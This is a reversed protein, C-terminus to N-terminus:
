VKPVTGNGTRGVCTYYRRKGELRKGTTSVLVIKVYFRGKPLGRLNVTSRFRKGRLVKTRHGNVFVTAKKVHFGKPVRLRISFRRRSGCQKAAQGLVGGAATQTDIGGGPKTNAQAPPATCNTGLARVGDVDYGDADAPTGRRSSKDVIKVYRAYVMGAPLSVSATKLVDAAALQFTVGDQSVYVDAREDVYPLTTAEEILLAKGEAANCIANQFGLVIQGGFGLSSFYEPYKHPQPKLEAIGLAANLVSRRDSVVSGDARMGPDISVVTDAWPGVGDPTAAQAAPTIISAMAVVALACLTKRM